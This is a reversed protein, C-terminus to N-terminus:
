ILLSGTTKILVMVSCKVTIYRFVVILQTLLTQFLFSSRNVKQFSFHLLEKLEKITMTTARKIM